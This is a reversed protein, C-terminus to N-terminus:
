AGRRPVVRQAESAQYWCVRLDTGPQYLVLGYTQVLSSCCVRLDNGSESPQYWVFAHALAPSPLVSAPLFQAERYVLRM